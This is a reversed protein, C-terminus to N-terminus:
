AVYYLPSPRLFGLLLAVFSQCAIVLASLLHRGFLDLLVKGKEGTQAM